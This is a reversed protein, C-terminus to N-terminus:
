GQTSFITRPGRRNRDQPKSERQANGLQVLLKRLKTREELDMEVVEFARAQTNTDRIITQARVPKQGANFRMEV